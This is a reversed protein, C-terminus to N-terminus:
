SKKRRDSWARRQGGGGVRRGGGFSNKRRDIFRLRRWVPRRRGRVRRELQADFAGSRVLKDRIRALPAYASPFAKNGLHNIRAVNSLVQPPFRTGGYSGGQVRECTDEFLEEARSCNQRGSLFLVELFQGISLEVTVTEQPDIM